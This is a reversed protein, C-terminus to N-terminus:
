ALQRVRGADGSSSAALTALATGVGLAAAGLAGWPWFIHDVAVAVAGAVLLAAAALGRAGTRRVVDVALAGAAVLLGWEGVDGLSGGIRFLLRVEDPRPVDGLSDTVYGAAIGSIVDLATYFTAYVASGVLVLLALPDRRPWVLSVLAVGVLPFVVLGVVHMVWWHQASDPTLRHPHTAGAVGLAVGPLARLLALQIPLARDM